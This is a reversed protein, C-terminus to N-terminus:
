EEKITQEKTPKNEAGGGEQAKGMPNFVTDGTHDLQAVKAELMDLREVCMRSMFAACYLRQNPHCLTCDKPCTKTNEAM